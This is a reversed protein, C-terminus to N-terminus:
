HNLLMARNEAANLLAKNNTSFGYPLSQGM